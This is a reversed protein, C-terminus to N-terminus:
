RVRLRFSRLAKLLAVSTTQLKRLVDCDGSAALRVTGLRLAHALRNRLRGQQLWGWAGREWQLMCMAVAWGGGVEGIIRDKSIYAGDLFIEAFHNEGSQTRIPRAEIGPQGLDVLVMTPGRHGPGGSRALLVIATSLTWLNAVGKVPSETATVM